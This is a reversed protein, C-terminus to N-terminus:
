FIGKKLIARQFSIIHRHERHGNLKIRGQSFQVETEETFHLGKVMFSMTETDEPTLGEPIDEYVGVKGDDMKVETFGFAAEYKHDGDEYTVTGHNRANTMLIAEVKDSLVKAETVPVDEGISDLAKEAELEFKKLDEETM